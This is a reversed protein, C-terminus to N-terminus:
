SPRPLGRVGIGVGRPCRDRVLDIDALQDMLSQALTSVDGGQEIELMILVDMKQLSGDIVEYRALGSISSAVTEIAHHIGPDLHPRLWPRGEAVATLAPETLAYLVPGAVDILVADASEQKAAEAVRRAEAPIGRASPDWAALSDMSTFALLGRRGDPQVLTVTAMHSSKEHRLGDDTVDVEDAVAVVPVMLRREALVDVVDYGTSEGTWWAHLLSALQPDASGDDGVFESEPIQAGQFQSNL